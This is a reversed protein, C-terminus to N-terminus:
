KGKLFEKKDYGCLYVKCVKDQHQSYYACLVETPTEVLHPYSCDGMSDMVAWPTLSRDKNVKYVMSYSLRKDFLPPNAKVEAHDGAYNARSTLFMQGGVEFFHEGELIGPHETLEWKQYPPKAVAVTHNHGYKRRIYIVMTRDEEFRLVSESANNVQLVTSVLDWTIGDKSAILEIRREPSSGLNPIAHPPAWFQQSTPDYMVGWFYLPPKYAPKPEGWAVGDDSVRVLTQRDKDVWEYSYVKDGAVVYEPAGGVSQQAGPHQEVWTKGDDKSTYCLTKGTAEYKRGRHGDLHPFTLIITGKFRFMAPWGGLDTMARTWRPRVLGTVGDSTIVKFSREGPRYKGVPPFGAFRQDDAAAVSGALLTAVTLPFLTKLISM